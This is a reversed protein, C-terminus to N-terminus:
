LRKLDSSGGLSRTMDPLASATLRATVLDNLEATEARLQLEPANPTRGGHGPLLALPAYIIDGTKTAPPPSAGHKPWAFGLQGAIEAVGARALADLAADDFAHEPATAAGQFHRADEGVLERHLTRDRIAAAREADCSVGLLAALDGIVALPEALLREFRIVKLPINPRLAARMFVLYSNVFDRFEATEPAPDAARGLKRLTSRLALLPHRVIHFGTHGLAAMQAESEHNFLVHTGLSRELGAAYPLGRLWFWGQDCRAMMGATLLTRGHGIQYTFGPLDGFADEVATRLSLAQADALHRRLADVPPDDPALQRLIAQAVMNGSGPYGVVAWRRQMGPPSPARLALAAPHLLRRDGVKARVRPLLRPFRHDLGREPTDLVVVPCTSPLAADVARVTPLGAPPQDSYPPDVVYRPAFGVRCALEVTEEMM